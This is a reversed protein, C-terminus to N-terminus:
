GKRKAEWRKYIGPLERQLFELFDIVDKLSRNFEPTSKPRQKLVDRLIMTVQGFQALHKKMDEQWHPLRTKFYRKRDGLKSIYELRGTTILLNIANSAASKSINLTERIQDFTLEPVDSVLLLALVRAAAPQMGSNESIVGLKEILTKQEATLKVIDSM